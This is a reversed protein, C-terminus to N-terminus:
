QATSRRLLEVPDEVDPVQEHVRSPNTTAPTSVVNKEQRTENTTHPM